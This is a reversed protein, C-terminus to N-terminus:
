DEIYGGDAAIIAELRKRFDICVKIVYEEGMENWEKDVSTKLANINPHRVRCARYEVHPWFAFDLPNADPSYPPWKLKDWFGMIDHQDALFKQAANSTHAPAGDHQLIVNGGPYANRVWPVLKEGLIKVYDAVTLRYGTPFWILPMKQGDTWNKPGVRALSERSIM